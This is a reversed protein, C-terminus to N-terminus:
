ANVLGLKRILRSAQLRTLEGREYKSMIVAKRAAPDEVRLLVRKLSPERHPFTHCTM